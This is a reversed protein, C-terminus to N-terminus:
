GLKTIRVGRARLYVFLGSRLDEDDILVLGERGDKTLVLTQEGRLEEIALSEVSFSSDALYKEIEQDTYRTNM